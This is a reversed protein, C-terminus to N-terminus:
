FNLNEKLFYYNNMMNLQTLSMKHKKGRIRKVKELTIGVNM